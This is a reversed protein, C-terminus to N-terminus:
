KFGSHKTYQVNQAYQANCCATCVCLNANVVPYIIYLHVSGLQEAGQKGTCGALADKSPVCVMMMLM